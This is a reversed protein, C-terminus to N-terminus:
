GCHKLNQPKDMRVAIKIKLNNEPSNKPVQLKHWEPIQMFACFNYLYICACVTFLLMDIVNLNNYAMDIIVMSVVQM